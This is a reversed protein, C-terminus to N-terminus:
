EHENESHITPISLIRFSVARLTQKKAGISVTATGTAQNYSFRLSKPLQDSPLVAALQTRYNSLRTVLNTRMSEADGPTAADIEFETEEPSTILATFLAQLTSM